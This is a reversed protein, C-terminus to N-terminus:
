LRALLREMLPNGPAFAYDVWGSATNKPVGGVTNGVTGDNASTVIPDLHTFTGILNLGRALNAQAEM